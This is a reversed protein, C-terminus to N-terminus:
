PAECAVTSSSEALAAPASATAAPDNLYAVTVSIRKVASSLGVLSLLIVAIFGLRGPITIMFDGGPLRGSKLATDAAGSLGQEGSRLLGQPLRSNLVTM